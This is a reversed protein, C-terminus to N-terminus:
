MKYAPMVPINSLTSLEKNIITPMSYMHMTINYPM